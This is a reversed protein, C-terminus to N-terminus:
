SGICTREIRGNIKEGKLHRILNKAFAVNSYHGSRIAIIHADVGIGMLSLDGILDLIKHRVMEDEFRLGEPNMVENDKILVANELGGGRMMNRDLLPKIDEYLSFTRSPAILSEYDDKELSYSFFQSKLLKSHPFNLTFSVKFGDSPIAVLHIEKESWSVPSQLQVIQKEADLSIIEAEKILSIFPKASGDGIPVEFGSLQIIANDIGHAFLASLIHEVTQITFQDNGLTTCLTTKKVNELSAKIMPQGPLDMRQFYIGTNELSPCLNMSVKEGSFLGKGVFSVQKKITKQRKFQIV